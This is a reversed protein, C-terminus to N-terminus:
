LIIDFGHNTMVALKVSVTSRLPESDYVLGISMESSYKRMFISRIVDATM